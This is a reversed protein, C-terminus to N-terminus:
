GKAAGYFFILLYKPKQERSLDGSFDNKIM